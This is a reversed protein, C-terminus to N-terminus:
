DIVTFSKLKLSLESGKGRWGQVIASIRLSKSSDPTDLGKPLTVEYQQGTTAMTFVLAGDKIESIQGSADFLVDVLKLNHLRNRALNGVVKKLPITTPEDYTVEVADTPLSVKGEKAAGKTMQRIVSRCAACSTCGQLALYVRAFPQGTESVTEGAPVTQVSTILAIVLALGARAIRSWGTKRLIISVM